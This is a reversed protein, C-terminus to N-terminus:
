AGALLLRDLDGRRAAEVLVLDVPHHLVGRGVGVLVALLAFRDVGAVVEVAEDVLRFLREALVAAREVRRRLAADLRREGVGLLREVRVVRGGELARSVRQRPRRVLEGFRHVALRARAALLWAVAGSSRVALLLFGLVVDDLRLEFLHFLLRAQSLSAPLAFLRPGRRM